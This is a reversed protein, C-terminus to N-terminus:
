LQIERWANYAPSPGKKDSLVEETTSSAAQESDSM